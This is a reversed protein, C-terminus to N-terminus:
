RQHHRREAHIHFGHFADIGPAGDLRVRVDTHGAYTKFEVTGIRAGDATVLRAKASRTRADVNNVTVLGAVLVAGATIAILKKKM